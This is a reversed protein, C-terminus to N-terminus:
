DNKYKVKRKKDLNIKPSPLWLKGKMMLMVDLANNDTNVVADLQKSGLTNWM